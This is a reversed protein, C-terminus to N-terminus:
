ELQRIMIPMTLGTGSRGQSSIVDRMSKYDQSSPGIATIDSLRLRSPNISALAKQIRTYAAHPGLRDVVPSFIVLRWDLSEPFYYWLAGDVRFRNRKLAEILRTAEVQLASPDSVVLPANVLVKQYM